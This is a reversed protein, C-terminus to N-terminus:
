KRWYGWSNWFSTRQYARNQLLDRFESPTVGPMKLAEESVKTTDRVLIVHSNIFM